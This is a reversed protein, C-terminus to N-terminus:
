NHLTDPWMEAAGYVFFQEPKQIEQKNRRGMKQLQTPGSKKRKATNPNSSLAKV